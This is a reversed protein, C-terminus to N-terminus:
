TDEPVQALRTDDPLLRGPDLWGQTQALARLSRAKARSMLGAKALARDSDGLCMRAIIQCYEFM